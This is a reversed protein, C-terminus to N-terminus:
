INLTFKIFEYIPLLHGFYEIITNGINDKSLRIDDPPLDIGIIFYHDIKDQLLFNALQNEDLFSSVQQQPLNNM